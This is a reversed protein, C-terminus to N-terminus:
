FHEVFKETYPSSSAAVRALHPFHRNSDSPYFSTRMAMKKGNSLPDKLKRTSSQPTSAMRSNFGLPYLGSYPREAEDVVDADLLLV